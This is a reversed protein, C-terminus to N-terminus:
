FSMGDRNKKVIRFGGNYPIAVLGSDAASPARGKVPEPEYDDGEEVMREKPTSKRLLGILYLSVMLIGAWIFFYERMGLVSCLMYILGNSDLWAMDQYGLVGRGANSPILSIAGEEWNIAVYIESHLIAEDSLGASVGDLINQIEEGFALNILSLDKIALVQFEMPNGLMDLVSWYVPDDRMQKTVDDYLPYPLGDVKRQDVILHILTPISLNNGNAYGIWPGEFTKYGDKDISKFHKSLLDKVEENKYGEELYEAKTKKKLNGNAVNLEIYKDLLEENVKLRTEYDNTLDEYFITKSTADALLDPAAVDIVGWLFGTVLLAIIISVFTQKYVSSRKTCAMILTPIFWVLALVCVLIIGVYPFIGYSGGSEIVPLSKWIVVGILAPFGIIYLLAILIKKM